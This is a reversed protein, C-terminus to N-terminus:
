KRRAAARQATDRISKLQPLFVKYTIANVLTHTDVLPRTEGGKRQITSAALPPTVKGAWIWDRLEACWKYGLRQLAKNRTTKGAIVDQLEIAAEARMRAANKELWGELWRRRPPGKGEHHISAIEGVTLGDASPHPKEAEKGQVGLVVSGLEGLTEALRAFGHDTDEITVRGPPM